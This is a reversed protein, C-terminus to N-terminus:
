KPADVGASSGERCCHAALACRGHMSDAPCATPKSGKGRAKPGAPTSYGRGASKQSRAGGAGDTCQAIKDDEGDPVLETLVGSATVPCKVGACAMAPRAGM